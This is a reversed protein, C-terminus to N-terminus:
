KFLRVLGLIDVHGILWALIAIGGMITWKWRDIDKMSEKLSALEDEIAKRQEIECQNPATDQTVRVSLVADHLDRIDSRLGMIDSKVEEEVKAHQMHQSEHMTIIRVVGDLILETKDLTVSVKACLTAVTEVDKKLLGVDLRLDSRVQKGYESM